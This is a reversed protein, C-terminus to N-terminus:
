KKMNVMTEIKEVAIDDGTVKGTVKVKDGNQRKAEIEKALEGSAVLNFVRSTKGKGDTIRCIVDSKADTAKVAMNGAITITSGDAPAERKMDKKKEDAAMSSTCCGLAFLVCMTAFIKKM